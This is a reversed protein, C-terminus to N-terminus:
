EDNDRRSPNIKRKPTPYTKGTVYNIIFDEIIKRDKDRRITRTILKM